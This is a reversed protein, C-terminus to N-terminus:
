DHLEFGFVFFDHSLDLFEAPLLFGFLHLRLAWSQHVFQPGEPLSLTFQFAM